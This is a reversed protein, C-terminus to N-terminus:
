RLLDECFKQIGDADPSYASTDPFDLNMIRQWVAHVLAELGAYDESQPIYNLFLQKPEEAEVYAVRTSITSGQKTTSLNKLLLAYFTLQLKHRWAKTQKTKDRTTFSTLPTGTKYDTIIYEGNIEELHDLIGQLKADGLQVPGLKVEARATEPLTFNLETFLKQLLNRGYAGYREKDTRPIVQEELAKDYAVLVKAVEFSDQRKLNQATQLASHIALGFGKQPSIGEPIKLFKRAFFQQPGGSTVDLFQCLDTASLQYNELRDKLLAKEEAHDLRPWSIATELVEIPDGLSEPNPSETQLVTTILPTALVERGFTDHSYSSAIFSRRARTAAVYFLRVYDDSQEGYPQLPLNAPPRRGQRRPQWNDEIADLLYVTDFELGKAKHVTMLEVAKEGSTFWSQDVIGRELHRNLRVFRVFDHLEPTDTAAFEQVMGIFVATGSLALLYSNDVTKLKIYYDRLPSRMHEGERLGLMFELMVPLPERVSESALWQLWSGIAVIHEDTNEIMSLLWDTKGHNSLALEWLQRPQLQWMPHYLLQALNANVVYRSGDVIGQVTEAILCLQEIPELELINNQQEYRLPVHMKNLLSSLERLSAHNRALVAITGTEPKDWSQEIRQALSTYQHDRTPYQIHNIEGADISTAAELHKTIDDERNVIRDDAQEIIKEATNLVAQTSRYNKKLVILKTGKYSRRFTLMNNLEAGNFAFISQDDDGVAMINPAADDSYHSAVLHAFRLQAANTDQFEDILTYLFQEQVSARLEPEQELQTIVEVIMDSYDYYGREHLRNRYAAYADAFALWWANRRREDFMGKEGRVTQLWRRKWKGTQTTKGTELDATVAAQLSEKLVTGLSVLPTIELDINQDPLADIADLIDPLKKISLTASLVDVLIPEIVDIYAVNLEIMAALKSPTLGAEKSLKLAQQVDPLATYQGAFKSALPNDLPLESLVSQVIDLQVTDPAVTLRAGNWFYDPYLSMIDAAFSHFTKVRVNRSGPGILRSLRERMNTAAFNTFTLCLVSAPDTDTQKLINAVRLSLLQTKGTGPGAVVLVPGDISDVAARQEKNLQAYAAAFNDDM